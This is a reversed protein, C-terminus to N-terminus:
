VTRRISTEPDFLIDDMSPAPRRGGPTSPNGLRLDAAVVRAHGRSPGHRQHLEDLRPDPGHRLLGWVRAAAVWASWRMATRRGSPWPM